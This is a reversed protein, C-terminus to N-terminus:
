RTAAKQAMALQVANEAAIETEKPEKTKAKVEGRAAIEAKMEATVKKPLQTQALMEQKKEAQKNEQVVATIDKATMAAAKASGKVALKQEVKDMADAAAEKAAVNQMAFGKERAEKERLREGMMKITESSPVWHPTFDKIGVEALERQIRAKHTRAISEVGKENEQLFLEIDKAPFDYIVGAQAMVLSAMNNKDFKISKLELNLDCLEAWDKQLGSLIQERDGYQM